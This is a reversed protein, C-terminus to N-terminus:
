SRVEKTLVRKDKKESIPSVVDGIKCTKRLKKLAAKAKLKKRFDSLKIEHM